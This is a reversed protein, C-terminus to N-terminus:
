VALGARGRSRLNSFREPVTRGVSVATADRRVTNTRFMRVSMMLKM